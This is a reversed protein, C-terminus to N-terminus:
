LVLVQLRRVRGLVGVADRRVLSAIGGNLVALKCSEQGSERPVHDAQRPRPGASRCSVSVYRFGDEVCVSLRSDRLLHRHKLSGRPTSLILEDDSDLAYWMVMQHPLGTGLTSHPSHTYQLRVSVCQYVISM